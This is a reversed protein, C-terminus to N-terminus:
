LRLRNLLDIATVFYSKLIPLSIRTAWDTVISVRKNSSDV